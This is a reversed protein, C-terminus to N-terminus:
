HAILDDAAAPHEVLFHRLAVCLEMAHRVRKEDLARHIDDILMRRIQKEGGARHLLSSALAVAVMEPVHEHEAIAAIERESLGCLAFCDEQSIM